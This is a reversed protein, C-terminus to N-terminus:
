SREVLYQLVVQMEADKLLVKKDVDLLYVTPSAKTDYLRNRHIFSDTDFGNIWNKSLHSEYNKWKTRDGWPEITVIQIHKQKFLDTLQPTDKLLALIEKCHICETDYFLLLTYQAKVDSLKQVAGDLREFSFDEAKRGVKNRLILKYIPRYAEKELDTLVNTEILHKLVSEYRIDDRMPSNGNYLYHEYMKIFYDFSSRNNRAKDLMQAVARDAVSDPATQLAAIFDVLKQEGINPDKVRATDNMDLDNWYRFVISDAALYVKNSTASNSTNSKSNQNCSISLLTAIGVAFWFKLSVYKM